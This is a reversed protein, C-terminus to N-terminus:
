VGIQRPPACLVMATNFVTDRANGSNAITVADVVNAIVVGM